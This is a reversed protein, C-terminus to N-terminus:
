IGHLYCTANEGINEVTSIDKNSQAVALTKTICGDNPFEATSAKAAIPKNSELNPTENNSDM